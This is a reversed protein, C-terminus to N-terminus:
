GGAARQRRAEFLLVAAAASANLSGVRGHLPITVLLDCREAVLRRLGRGEAGIVLALDGALDAEHYVQAREGVGPGPAVTGVTWIGRAALTAMAAVLNTVRAVPLHYVAGASARVVAASLGAARDKPIIVGQAGAGEASRIIAGLNQPDVIGDLLVLLAPRGAARDAEVRSLLDELAVYGPLGRLRAAVGQHRDHGLIRSLEARDRLSVPVGAAAAAERIPALRKAEAERAVLVERVGAPAALLAEHVPHVGAIWAPGTGEGTPRPREPGRRM